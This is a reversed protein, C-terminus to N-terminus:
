KGKGTYIEIRQLLESFVERKGIYYNQEVEIQHVTKDISFCGQICLNCNDIQRTAYAKLDAILAENDSISMYGMNHGKGMKLFSM